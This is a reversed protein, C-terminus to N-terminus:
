SSKRESAAETSAASSESPVVLVPIPAERLVSEAVSGLWWRRPGHRRRTGVVVLDFDASLRRIVEAPPGDEVVATFPVQLHRAVFTNVDTTCRARAEHREAELADMQTATFYAPRAFHHAHVVTIRADFTRGLAEAARLAAASSDDLDVGVLIRTVNPPTM